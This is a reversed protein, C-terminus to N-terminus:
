FLLSAACAIAAWAAVSAASIIAICARLSLRSSREMGVAPQPAATINPVVPGASVDNAFVRMSGLLNELDFAVQEPLRYASLQGARSGLIVIVGGEANRCLEAGVASITIIPNRASAANASGFRGLDENVRGPRDILAQSKIHRAVQM